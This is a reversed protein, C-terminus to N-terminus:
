GLAESGICRALLRYEVLQGIVAANFQLTELDAHSFGPPDAATSDAPKLKVCSIVGRLQSAFVLPVALMACTKLGLQQDLSKDQRDNHHVDNECIPMETQVVMGIMGTQLPQRFAGVIQEANPGSNFRPVLYQHSEDLMWVTGEDASVRQICDHALARVSRDFFDNFATGAMLHAMERVRIELQPRLAALMEDPLVKTHGQM